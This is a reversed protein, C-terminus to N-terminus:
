SASTVEQLLMGKELTTSSEIARAVAQNQELSVIEATGVRTGRITMGKRDTAVTFVDMRIEEHLGQKSGINIILEGGDAVDVVKGKLPYTSAVKATIKDCLAQAVQRVGAGRDFSEVLVIRPLSTETEILRLTVTLEDGFLDLSGIGVLNAAFLKGLRLATDEDALASTGLGLEELLQEMMEREVPQVRGQEALLQTLRAVLLDRFVTRIGPGAANEVFLSLVMPRSTWQDRAAPPGVQEGERYRRELEAIQQRIRSRREDDAHYAKRRELEDKLLTALEDEPRIELARNVQMLAQDYKDAKQLAVAYDTFHRPNDGDTAKIYHELAQTIDGKELYVRGLNSHTVARHCTFLPKKQLATKYEKIAEDLEGNVHHINGKITHVYANDPFETEVAKCLEMAEAYKDQAYRVAALGAKDYGGDPGAHLFMSEARDFEGLEALCYGLALKAKKHDPALQLVEQFSDAANGTMGRDMQAEADRMMGTVQALVVRETGPPGPTMIGLDRAMRDLQANKWLNYAFVILAVVAVAAVARTVPHLRRKQEPKRLYARIDELLEDVSQYRNEVKKAMMKRVIKDIEPPLDPQLQRIPVTEEEVIQHTISVPTEGTFPLKGSLMRYLVVGLSFIDSRTDLQEGCCQEPSMYQATGLLTRADTLRTGESIQVLGFDTLRARGKRDILINGPKIDRHILDAEHAAALGHAVQEVIGLAREPAIPAERAIIESLSEGEVYEMAIYHVGDEEGVDYVPVINPHSLKATAEAERRFRAVMSSDICLSSLLVKLAVHRNLITDRAKYLVAMGGTAIQELVVYKGLRKGTLKEPELM